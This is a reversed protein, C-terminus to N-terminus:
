AEKEAAIGYQSLLHWVFPNCAHIRLRASHQRLFAAGVADLLRVENLDLVLEGEQGWHKEIERGLLGAASGCLDGEVRLLTKQRNQQALSIRIVVGGKPFPFLQTAPKQLYWAM